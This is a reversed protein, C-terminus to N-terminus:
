GLAAFAGSRSFVTGRARIHIGLALAVNQANHGPRLRALPGDLRVRVFKVTVSSSM